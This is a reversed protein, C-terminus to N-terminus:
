YFVLLQINVMRIVLHFHTPHVHEHNMILLSNNNFCTATDWFLTLTLGLWPQESFSCNHFGTYNTLPLYIGQTHNFSYVLINLQHPKTSATILSLYPSRLSLEVPSFIGLHHLFFKFFPFARM